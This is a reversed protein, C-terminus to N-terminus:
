KVLPTWAIRVVGEQTTLQRIAEPVKTESHSSHWQLKCTFRHRGTDAAISLAMSAIRFGADQLRSRIEDEAPGSPGAIIVLEASKDQKM